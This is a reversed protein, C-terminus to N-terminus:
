VHSVFNTGGVNTEKDSNLCSSLLNPMLQPFPGSDRNCVSQMALRCRHADGEGGETEHELSMDDKQKQEGHM